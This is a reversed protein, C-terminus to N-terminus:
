VFYTCYYHRKVAFSTFFNFVFYMCYYHRKVIFLTSLYLFYNYM